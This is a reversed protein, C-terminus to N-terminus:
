FSLVHNKSFKPFIAFKPPASLSFKLHQKKKIPFAKNKIGKLPVSVRKEIDHRTQAVSRVQTQLVVKRTKVFNWSLLLM